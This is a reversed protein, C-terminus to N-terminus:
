TLGLRIDHSLSRHIFRTLFAPESKNSFVLGEKCLMGEFRRRERGVGHRAAGNQQQRRRNRQQHRVGAHQEPAPREPFLLPSEARVPRVGKRQGGGFQQEDGTRRDQDHATQALGTGEDDASGIM